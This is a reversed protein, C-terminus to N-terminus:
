YNVSIPYVSSLFLSFSFPIPHSWLPLFFPSFSAFLFHSGHPWLNCRSNPNGIVGQKQSSLTDKPLYYENLFILQPLIWQPIQLPNSDVECESFAESALKQCQRWLSTCLWHVTHTSVTFRKCTFVNLICRWRPLRTKTHGSKKFFTKELVKKESFTKGKKFKKQKKPKNKLYLECVVCNM